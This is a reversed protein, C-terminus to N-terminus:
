GIYGRPEEPWRAIMGNYLRLAEADRGLAAESEALADRAGPPLGPNLGLATRMAARVSLSDRRAPGGAGARDLRASRTAGAPGGARQRTRRSRSYISDIAAPNGGCEPRSAGCVRM